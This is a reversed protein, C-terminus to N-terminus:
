RTCPALAARKPGAAVSLAFPGTAFPERSTVVISYDGARPLRVSLRANCHGGSDDDQPPAREFGPGLLFLYADFANSALDITVTQGAKGALRWQQAYTSEAPLVIDHRTLSDHVTQGVVITGRATRRPTFPTAQATLRSGPGRLGLALLLAVNWRNM